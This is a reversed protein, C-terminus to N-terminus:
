KKAMEKLWERNERIVREVMKDAKKFDLKGPSKLKPEAKKAPKSKTVM